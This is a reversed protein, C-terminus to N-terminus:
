LDGCFLRHDGLIWLDGPHTIAEDPPEPIEDPDTLGEAELNIRHELALDDLMKQIAPSQTEIEGLLSALSQSNAEAMAALPDLVLMLKDAELNDLDLILVPVIEDPTTEARMHGDVIELRGDPLERVLLADAYGIEALVGRLANQQAEPHPRWNRPNPALDGARVRRLEKVRDRIQM